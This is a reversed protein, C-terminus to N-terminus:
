HLSDGSIELVQMLRRDRETHETQWRQVGERVEARLHHLEAQVEDLRTLVQTLQSRLQEHRAALRALPSAYRTTAPM